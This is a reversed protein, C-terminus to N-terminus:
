STQPTRTCTATTQLINKAAELNDGLLDFFPTEEADSLDGPYHPPTAGPECSSHAMM